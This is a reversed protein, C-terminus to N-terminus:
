TTTKIIREVEELEQRVEELLVDCGDLVGERGKLELQQCLASLRPAGVNGSSGKLSHASRRVQEAAKEDLAQQLSAIHQESDNLFTELLRRFDDGMVDRLVAFAEQDVHVQSM